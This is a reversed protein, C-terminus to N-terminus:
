MMLNQRSPLNQLDIIEANTVSPITEILECASLARHEHAKGKLSLFFDVNPLEKVLRATEDVVLGEFLGSGTTKIESAPVFNSTNAIFQFELEMSTSTFEFIAFNFEHEDKLVFPLNTTYHLDINLTRNIYALAEYLSLRSSIGIVTFDIADFSHSLLHKAM